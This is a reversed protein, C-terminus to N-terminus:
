SEYSTERKIIDAMVREVPVDSNEAMGQLVQWSTWPLSFEFLLKKHSGIWVSRSDSDEVPPATSYAKALDEINGTESCHKCYWKGTEPNVQLEGISDSHVPCYLSIEQSINLDAIPCHKEIWNYYSM